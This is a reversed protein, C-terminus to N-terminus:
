FAQTMEYMPMVIAVAMAGIALGLVLIILPEIISPLTNMVEEVEEEYFKALEELISDLEGTEEGVSVMQLIMDSYLNPYVALLKHIPQGKKVQAATEELSKKYHLNGLTNATIKFSQVIKIDTKLLSSMTRAFRALNIKKVIPAIIPIKLIVMQWYYRGQYTRLIRIIIVLFIVIGVAVLLGHKVINNSVAILIRTMLPLEMNIGEFIGVLKPVVFIMVGAGIGTMAVFIVMPYMLAGRIKGRLQHEKKLQLYLQKLVDELKGSIEGAEVMNVFLENFIKPYSKLSEHLTQGKEVKHHIDNIIKKFRKNKTQKALAELAKALSIGAKTMTGLHQIFFIKESSPIRQFRLLFDDVQNLFNQNNNTPKKEEEPM